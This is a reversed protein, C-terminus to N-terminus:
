SVKRCPKTDKFCAKGAAVVTYLLHLMWAQSYLWLVGSYIMFGGYAETVCKGEEGRVGLSTGMAKPLLVQPLDIPHWWLDPQMQGVLM